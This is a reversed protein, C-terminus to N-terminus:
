SPCLDMHQFQYREKPVATYKWNFKDYLQLTILGPNTAIRCGVRHHLKDSEGYHLECGLQGGRAHKVAADDHGQGVDVPFQEGVM